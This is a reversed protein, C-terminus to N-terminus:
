GLLLGGSIRVAASNRARYAKGFIAGATEGEHGRLFATKRFYNFTEPSSLSRKQDQALKSIFVLFNM